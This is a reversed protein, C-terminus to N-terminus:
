PKRSRAYERGALAMSGAAAIAGFIYIYEYHVGGAILGAIPATLGISLDFFANYAAVAMGRNGPEVHRVAMQGFSPFVLSLGAGTLFAGAIAVPASPAAWLLLQGLVEVVLSYMVVREGGHKDPFHALFLRVLIYAAGFTTLALSADTWGRHQFYLPVFSAIGGFGISALALGTGSKWVLHVAKYFPLRKEAKALPVVPLLRTAVLSLLPLILIGTFALALGFRSQLYIGLPAGAAMGGYMGMGNWVMVRGIHKQGVLQFGWAFIGVVLFSEGVGLLVRGILLAGLSVAPLGQALLCFLGSVASLLIGRRVAVNGGRADALKGAFHRTGLTAIYQLGIVLGVVTNGWGLTNHVFAPLVGLSIGMVLFELFIICFIAALYRGLGPQALAM